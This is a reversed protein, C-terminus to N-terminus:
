VKIIKKILVEKDSYLQLQYIGKSLNTFDIETDDTEIVLQGM